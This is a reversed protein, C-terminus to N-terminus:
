AGDRFDVMGEAMARGGLVHVHFHHVSQQADPGTNIIIRYGTQAIGKIEAVHTAAAMVAQVVEPPVGDAIDAYHVRPIVLTHVPAQPAIDDFAVVLADEYVFTSPIEKRAIMCFVCESV